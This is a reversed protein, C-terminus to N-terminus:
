VMDRPAALTWAKSFIRISGEYADLRNTVHFGREDSTMLSSTEIRTQWDGRGIRISRDSRAAASLPQGEVITFTDVATYDNELGSDLFRVHGRESKDILQLEGTVSDHKWTRERNKAALTEVALPAAHEPNLFNPPQTTSRGPRIPLTLRSAEGTYLTLTVPEPSPWAHPWYTPSVAVRWRHGAPLSHAIVNLRVAVTYVRGPELPSPREHSERHTLNLLGWSVLLSEGGPAVDCLRVAVLANPKDASLTLTVEPFGFIEQPSDLPDSDFTLSLGDDPRQDTPCDGPKGYPCWMGSAQGCHQSGTTTLPNPPETTLPNPAPTLRRGHLYLTQTSINPSPWSSEAVWRGPRYDYFSRPSVSEQMWVTLMPEDMIGNEIGKLWRDWWRLCEQLFGIQPGPAAVEPYGHSWPGILGKRPCTLGALLRPVANTYADQWGGVAYVPAAIAAFDECVSGHKWFEDRRRHALWAEIYPPTKEMRELWVERWDPRFRPDPPQANFALMTSAWELMESGLLCGGMYHVDDAYRDDTSCLSIVAKLEPPRRAAIQLGNFGGWSIGIIGVSGTCWKQSAIWRLVELADDQEQPLYEDYLIGDSDGSGRMDVRLCAYGHGAFYPHRISDRYATGDNKRYPLYELIAPVPRQEADAPLWLRAALRAGDSLPIFLNETETIPRPFSTKIAPM